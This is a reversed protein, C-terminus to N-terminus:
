FQITSKSKRSINRSPRISSSVKKRHTEAAIKDLKEAIKEDITTSLLTTPM